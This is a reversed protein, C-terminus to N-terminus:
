TNYCIGGLRTFPHVLPTSSVETYPTGRSHFVVDENDLFCWCCYRCHSWLFSLSSSTNSPFHSSSFIIWVVVIAVECFHSLFFIFWPVFVFVREFLVVRIPNLFFVCLRNLITHNEIRTQDFSCTIWDLARRRTRLIETCRATTSSIDWTNIKLQDIARSKTQLWVFACISLVDQWSNVATTIM